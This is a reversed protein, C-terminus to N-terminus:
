FSYSVGLNYRTEDIFNLSTSFTWYRNLYLDIGAFVGAHNEQEMDPSYGTNQFSTDMDAFISMYRLGSFISYSDLNLAARGSIELESWRVSVTNWSLFDPHEHIKTIDLDDAEFTLFSVHARFALNREPIAFFEKDASIGFTFSSDDKRTQGESSHLELSSSGASISLDMFDALSCTGTVLTRASAARFHTFAPGANIGDSEKLKRKHTQSHSLSMIFRQKELLDLLKTKMIRGSWTGPATPPSDNDIQGIIKEDSQPHASLDTINLLLKINSPAAYENLNELSSAGTASTKVEKESSVDILTTELIYTPSAVRIEGQIVYDAKLLRGVRLATEFTMSSSSPDFGKERLTNNVKLRSIVSFKGNKACLSSYKNGILSAASATEDLMSTFPLIACTKKQGDDAAVASYEGSSLLISAALLLYVQLIHKHNM